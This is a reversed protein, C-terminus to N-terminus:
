MLKNVATEITERAADFESAEEDTLRAHVSYAWLDWLLQGMDHSIREKLFSVREDGELAWYLNRERCTDEKAMGEAIQRAQAKRDTECYHRFLLRRAENRCAENTSYQNIRDAISDIEPAYIHSLEDDESAAFLAYMLCTLLRDNNPYRRLAERLSIIPQETMNRNIESEAVAIISDIEKRKEAENVGLLEDVTVKFLEALIPLASIDPSTAGTEWRSVAQPSIRLYDAVQEQTLDNKKRLLKLRDSLSTMM